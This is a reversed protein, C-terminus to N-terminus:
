NLLGLWELFQYLRNAKIAELEDRVLEYDSECQNYDNTREKYDCEIELRESNVEHWAIEQAEIEDKLVEIRGLTEHWQKKYFEQSPDKPCKTVYLSACTANERKISGGLNYKKGPIPKRNRWKIGYQSQKTRYQMLEDILRFPVQYFLSIQNPKMTRM